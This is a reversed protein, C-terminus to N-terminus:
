INRPPSHQPEVVEGKKPGTLMMRVMRLLSFRAVARGILPVVLKKLTPSEKTVKTHTHGQHRRKFGHLGSNSTCILGLTLALICSCGGLAPWGSYRGNSSSFHLTEYSYTPSGPGFRQCTRLLVVGFPFQVRVMYVKNREGEVQM